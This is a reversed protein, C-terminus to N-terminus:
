FDLNEDDPDIGTNSVSKDFVFSTIISAPPLVPIWLQSIVTDRGRNAWSEDSKNNSVAVIFLM